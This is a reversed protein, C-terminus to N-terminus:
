RLLVERLIMEVAQERRKKPVKKLAEVRGDYEETVKRAEKKAKDEEVAILDDIGTGRQASSRRHEAEEKAAKVMEDARRQAESVKMQAEAEAEELLRQLRGGISLVREMEM